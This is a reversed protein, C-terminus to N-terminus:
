PTGPACRARRTASGVASAVYTTASSTSPLVKVFTVQLYYITAGQAEFHWAPYPDEAHLVRLTGCACAARTVAELDYCPTEPVAPTCPFTTVLLGGDALVHSVDRLWGELADEQLFELAGVCTVADFGSPPLASAAAVYTSSAFIDAEILKSYVGKTAAVKLSGASFDVGWADTEMVGAARRHVHHAVLGTGCGVDLYTLRAPPRGGGGGGAPRRELANFLSIAARAPATYPVANPTADYTPAWADYVDRWGHLSGPPPSM